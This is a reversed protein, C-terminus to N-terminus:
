ALEKTSAAACANFFFGFGAAREFIFEFNIKPVCHAAAYFFQLDRAHVGAFGAVARARDTRCLGPWCAIPGAGNLLGGAFQADVHGARAAAASSFTSSRARLLAAVSAHPARSGHVHSQT